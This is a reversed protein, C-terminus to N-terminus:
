KLEQVASFGHIENWGHISDYVWNGVLRYRTHPKLMPFPSHYNDCADGADNQDISHACVDEVVLTGPLSYLSTKYNGTDLLYNYQPDLAFFAHYDGDPEAQVGIVTGTAQVCGLRKLRDPSYIHDFSCHLPSESVSQRQAPVIVNDKVALLAIASLPTLLAFGTVLPLTLKMARNNRM